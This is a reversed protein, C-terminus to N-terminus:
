LYWIWGFLLYIIVKQFFTYSVRVTATDVFQVGDSDTVTCTIVASGKKRGYIEGNDNVSVTEPRDSEWSVSYDADKDADINCVLTKTRRFNLNEDAISVSHAYPKDTGRQYVYLNIEACKVYDSGIKCKLVYNHLGPNKPVVSIGAISSDDFCCDKIKQGDEYLSFLKQDAKKAFKLEFSEGCFVSKESCTMKIIQSNKLNEEVNLTYEDSKTSATLFSFITYNQPIVHITWITFDRFYRKSVFTSAGTTITITNAESDVLRIKETDGKVLLVLKSKQDYKVTDDFWVTIIGTTQDVFNKEIYGLANELTQYNTVKRKANESLADYAAGSQVIYRVASEDFGDSPIRAIMEMVTNFDESAHVEVPIEVFKNKYVAAIVTKGHQSTIKEYAFSPIGVKDKTYSYVADPEVTECSGDFFRAKLELGSLDIREGANYTLKSPAKEIELSSIGGRNELQAFGGTVVRGQADSGFVTVVCDKKDTNFKMENATVKAKDYLENDVFIEVTEPIMSGFRVTVDGSPLANVATTKMVAANTFKSSMSNYLTNLSDFQEDLWKIRNYMWRKFSTVASDFDTDYQWIREDNYASGRIEDCLTDIMGGEGAINLFASYRYEHYVKYVENLFYPDSCMRAIWQKQITKWFDYSSYDSSLDFDWVPGAALKGGTDKSLYTSRFGYDTNKFLENVVFCKVFSEVDILDTYRVTKGNYETCYDESFLADEVTQVYGFIYDYMDNSFGEPKEIGISVGNKSIFSENKEICILYGGDIPPVSFYDAINYTVGSYTVTGSTTWSLDDTMIDILEDRQDKTLKDTNGKYVAKAADEAVDDWDTIDVRDSGIRIHECLVYSGVSRGNLVLEVPVSQMYNLGMIGSLEYAVTNKIKTEDYPNSLLVWHKNKGLGFLDAKSDLKLKYPKKEDNWTTNGRGKIVTKGSYLISKSYYKDNGQVVMDADTEETKSVISKRNDTEIYIVPLNSIFMSKSAIRSGSYDFIKVTIMKEMDSSVPTYSAGENEIQRNDIYWKYRFGVSESGKIFVTMKQGAKGYDVDFYADGSDLDVVPPKQNFGNTAGSNVSCVGMLMSVVFIVSLFKKM